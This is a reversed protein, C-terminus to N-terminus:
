SGHRSILTVTFIKRANADNERRITAYIPDAVERPAVTGEGWRADDIIAGNTWGDPASVTGGKGTTVLPAGFAENIVRVVFGPDAIWLLSGPWDAMYHSVYKDDPSRDPNAPLFKEDRRYWSHDSIEDKQDWYVVKFSRASLNHVHFTINNLLSGPAKRRDQRRDQRRDRRRDRRRRRKAHKAAFVEEVPAPVLVGGGLALIGGAAITLIQRRTPILFAHDDAEGHQSQPM